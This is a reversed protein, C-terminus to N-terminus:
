LKSAIDRELIKRPLPVHVARLFEAFGKGLSDLRASSSVGRGLAGYVVFHVARIGPFEVREMHFWDKWDDGMMQKLRDRTLFSRMWDWTEENNARARPTFGVNVNAGKDGSRALLVDGIPGIKTSGFDSLDRPSITEYNERPKLTETRGPGGVKLKRVAEDGSGIINVSEEIEDQKVLAPFYGLFPLPDSILRWDLTASLGPFHQMFNYMIGNFVAKVTNAKAAQVFIRLYTTAALQSSPNPEPVGIRQFELLDIHKMLGWEELKNRLQAEQLDYKEKVAYGTANFTIEGQFGGKYFVALKTTPPPPHGRAGSVRVRNVGVQKVVVDKIDAKVDSNLYVTGQLEYLLQCKVVEETVVGNLKDHKTIVCEGKEDIEAIPCGLNLLKEVPYEDFGAFNGGTGYTSCEILHGAVLAGALRDFQDDKWEHWWAAAGMVPSADAVRGCIIIDAGEDLGRRIARCGLYANAAVIKKNPDELFNETDKVLQVEQNEVDLHPLRGKADRKLVDKVKFMLDDGDVWGVKLNYGKEKALQHTTEALGRPNLAGGNIVVKIRRENVASLSKQLGDWASAVWGPHTGEAYAEAYQALNAEALYDGTIVDIPGATAQHLMFDGPDPTAGSCNAIRVPRRLM